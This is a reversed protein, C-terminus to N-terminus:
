WDFFLQTPQQSKPRIARKRSCVFNLPMARDRSAVKIQTEQQHPAFLKEVIEPRNNSGSLHSLFLHQLRSSNNALFFSLAEANSMHGFGGSIRRKLFEPYGGNSLMEEDYNSELFAADCQRFHQTLNDCPKGIDTFIGVTTQEQRVTFSLPDIADHKKSFASVDMKGIRVTETNHIIRYQALGLGFCKELTRTNSYVPLNYKQSFSVLGKIHDTHEHTIFIAKITHPRLSVDQLRQELLKCSIGADILVAEQENGVYYANGNSGSNLSTYQLAM